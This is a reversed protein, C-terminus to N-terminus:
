RQGPLSPACATRWGSVARLARRWSLLGRRPLSSGHLWRARSCFRLDLFSWPTERRKPLQSRNFRCEVVSRPRELTLAHDVPYHPPRPLLTLSQSTIEGKRNRRAAHQCRPVEASLCKGIHEREVSFCGRDPPSRDGGYSPCVDGEIMFDIVQSNNVCNNVFVISSGFRQKCLCINVRVTGAVWLGKRRRGTATM